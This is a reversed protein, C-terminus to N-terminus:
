LTITQGEINEGSKISGQAQRSMLNWASCRRPPALNSPNWSTKSEFTSSSVSVNAMSRMCYPLLAGTRHLGLQNADWNYM